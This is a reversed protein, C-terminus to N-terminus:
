LLKLQMFHHDEEKEEEKKKKDDKEFMATCIARFKISYEPVKINYWALSNYSLLM